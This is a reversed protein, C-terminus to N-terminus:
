EYIETGREDSVTINKDAAFCRFAAAAEASLGQDVLTISCPLIGNSRLWLLGRLQMELEPADGTAAVRVSIRSCPSSRIPLLLKAHVLWLGTGALILIGIIGLLKLLM